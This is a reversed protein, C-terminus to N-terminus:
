CCCCCCCYYNIRGDSPRIFKSEKPKVFLPPFLFVIPKAEECLFCGDRTVDPHVSQHVLLGLHSPFASVKVFSSLYHITFSHSLFSVFYVPFLFFPPCNRSHKLFTTKNTKLCSLCAFRRDAPQQWRPLTWPTFTIFPHRRIEEIRSGNM